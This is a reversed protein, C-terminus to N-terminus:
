MPPPITVALLLLMIPHAARLRGPRLRLIKEVHARRVTRNVSAAGFRIKRLLLTVGSRM